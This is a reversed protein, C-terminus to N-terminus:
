WDVHAASSKISTKPLHVIVRKKVKQAAEVTKYHEPGLDGAMSRFTVEASNKLSQVQVPDRSFHDKLDLISM